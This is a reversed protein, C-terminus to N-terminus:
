LDKLLLLRSVHEFSEEIATLFGKSRNKFLDRESLSTKFGFEGINNITNTKWFIQSNDISLEQKAIFLEIKQNHSVMNYLLIKDMMKGAICTNAIVLKSKHVERLSCLFPFDNIHATIFVGDVDDYSTCFLFKKLVQGNARMYAWDSVDTGTVLKIFNRRAALHNNDVAIDKCYGIIWRM